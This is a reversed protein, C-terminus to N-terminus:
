PVSVGLLTRCRALKETRHRNALFGYHRIRVFQSPLLHLLFRRLFEVATLSMTQQRQRRRLEELSVHRPWGGALDIAFQLHGRPAHLPGPVEPGAGPRRLAAECLGGVADRLVHFDTAPIRRAPGTRGLPWPLRAKKEAFAQKLYDLFKGRFVASLVKVPVFFDEKHRPIWHSGDPSLGGGPVGTCTRIICPTKAGPICCQWTASRRGSISPRPPSRRCPRRWRESSCTTCCKKIRCPWRLSISQSPSFSTSTPYPYYTQGSHMSGRRVRPRRANRVTAIAAPTTPRAGTGM